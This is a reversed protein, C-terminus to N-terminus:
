KQLKRDPGQDHKEKIMIAYDNIAFQLTGDHCLRAQIQKILM